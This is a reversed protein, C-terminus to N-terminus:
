RGLNMFLARWADIQNINQYPLMELKNFYIKLLDENKSQSTRLLTILYLKIKLFTDILYIADAIWHEYLSIGENAHM